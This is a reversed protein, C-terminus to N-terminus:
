CNGPQPSGGPGVVHETGAELCYSSADARALVVQYSPDLSAGAYTGNAAYYVALEAEAQKFTAFTATTVAQQKAQVATDEQQKASFAFVYAGIAIAVLLGVFGFIRM